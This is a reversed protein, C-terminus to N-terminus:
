GEQSNLLLLGRLISSIDWILTGPSLCAASSRRWGVLTTVESPLETCSEKQCAGRPPGAKGPGWAGPGSGEPM